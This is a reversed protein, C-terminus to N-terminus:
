RSFGTSLTERRRISESVLLTTKTTALLDDLAIPSAGGSILAEVFAECEAQHGKDQRLRLRETFRRGCKFTELLRFDTLVASRGAAHVEVREKGLRPDGAATYVITAAGGNLFTLTVVVNDGHYRGADPLAAAFVTTPPSHHLWLVFDVFHCVEGLVRGGGVRPDHVWHDPPVFGANVRYNAMLPEPVDRFFEALSRALPAFRRNYGVMLILGDTQKYADSITELEDLTLCLPKEVFVHKGNALCDLVQQAHLNHRTAVVVTNINPDRLIRLPDTTCYEFQFRDACHRATVGARSAIGILSAQAKTFAPLLVAEAFAGAGLMGIRVLPMPESRQAAHSTVVPNGAEARDPYTLTVGLFPEGSKGTILDYASRAEEIPITHTVLPAIKVTNRSVLDLFSALNRGQTWRVQGIPYDHGQLEYTPDYRGPGSSRSVIFRLEKEFYARRPIHMGVAGIAVVVARDRAIRGALEVPEDGPSDATILVADVGIGCSWQDTASDAEGPSVVVDAGLSRALDARQRNPDIGIVACGAAKAFQMALQGLLGLGVIAVREGLQPGALRFGHLAIAGVTAFAGDTFGVADPLAACLQQPVCIVEAHNAFGAGSCAVRQGVVFDGEGALVTGAASYGLLVPRDLRVQVADFAALLGDRRARRFVQRVLDPRAMAKAILNKEAFQVMSRETGASVLSAATRVLVFGPLRAPPPVESIVIEGTRVSQLVQKM